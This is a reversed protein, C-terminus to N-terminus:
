GLTLRRVGRRELVTNEEPTLPRRGTLGRLLDADVPPDDDGFFLGTLVRDEKTGPSFREGARYHGAASVEARPPAPDALMGPLRGVATAVHGLLGAVTWPPCPSPRAFEEPALDLVVTALRGTEAAFAALVPRM